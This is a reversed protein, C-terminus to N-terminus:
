LAPRFPFLRLIWTNLRFIADTVLAVGMVLLFLGSVATISRSYRRLWTLDFALTLLL